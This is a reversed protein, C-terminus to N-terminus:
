KPIAELLQFNIVFYFLALAVGEPLSRSIARSFIHANVIVSWIIIAILGLFPLVLIESGEPVSLYFYTIPLAVLTIICGTGFFATLTQQYRPLKGTFRLLLWVFASIIVIDALISIAATGTFGAGGPRWLMLAQLLMYGVATIQLLFASAPVDEPGLRRRAVLWFLELLRLM